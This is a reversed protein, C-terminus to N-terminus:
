IDKSKNDCAKSEGWLKASYAKIAEYELRRDEEDILDDLEKCIKAWAAEKEAKNMAIIAKGKEWISEFKKRDKVLSDMFRENFAEKTKAM